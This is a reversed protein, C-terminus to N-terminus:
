HREKKVGGSNEARDAVGEVMAQDAEPRAEGWILLLGM